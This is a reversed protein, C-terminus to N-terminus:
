VQEVGGAWTPVGFPGDCENLVLQVGESNRAAARGLASKQSGEVAQVVGLRSREGGMDVSQSRHDRFDLRAAAKSDGVNAAEHPRGDIAFSHRDRGTAAALYAARQDEYVPCGVDVLGGDGGLSIGVVELDAEILAGM